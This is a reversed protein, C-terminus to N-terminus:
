AEQRGGGARPRRLERHWKRYWVSLKHLSAAFVQSMLLSEIAPRILGGFVTAAMVRLCLM